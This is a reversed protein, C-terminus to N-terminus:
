VLRGLSTTECIIPAPPDVTISLTTPDGVAFGPVRSHEVSGVYELTLPLASATTATWATAMWLSVAGASALRRM